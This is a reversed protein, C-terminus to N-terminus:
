SMIQVASVQVTKPLLGYVQPIKIDKYFSNDKDTILYARIVQVHKYHNERYKLNYIFKKIIYSTIVICTLILNYIM